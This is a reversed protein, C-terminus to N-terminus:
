PHEENPHHDNPHHDNPHHDNPHHHGTLGTVLARTTREFLDDPDFDGFEDRLGTLHPHDDASLEVGELLEPARAYLSPRLVAFGVAHWFLSRFADVADAGRLGAEDLLALASETGALMPASLHHGSRITPLLDGVGVLQDRISRTLAVLRDEVTGDLTVVPLDALRRAIVAALLDDKREFRLYLTMPNVGLRDALRRMTLAPVGDEDILALAEDVVEDQTLSGRPRRTTTPV